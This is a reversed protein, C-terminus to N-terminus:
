AMAHATMAVVPLRGLGLEGRIAATASYGDMHPMQLDTLM